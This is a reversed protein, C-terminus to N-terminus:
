RLFSSTQAEEDEEAREIWPFVRYMNNSTSVLVIKKPILDQIVNVTTTSANVMLIAIKKLMKKLVHEM